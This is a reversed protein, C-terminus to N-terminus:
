FNFPIELVSILLTVNFVALSCGRGRHHAVSGQQALLHPFIHLPAHFCPGSLGTLTIERHYLRPWHSIVERMPRLWYTHLMMKWQGLAWSKALIYLVPESLSSGGGSGSMSEHQCVNTIYVHGLGKLIWSPMMIVCSCTFCFKGTYRCCLKPFYSHLIPITYLIM